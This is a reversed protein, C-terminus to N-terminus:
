YGINCWVLFTCLILSNLLLFLDCNVCAIVMLRPAILVYSCSVFDFVSLQHRFQGFLVNCIQYSKAFPSSLLRSSCCPVYFSLFFDQFHSPASNLVPFLKTSYKEMFGILLTRIPKQVSYCPLAAIARLFSTIQGNNRGCHDSNLVTRQQFVILRAGSQEAM